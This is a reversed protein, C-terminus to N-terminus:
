RSATVFPDSHIQDLSAGALYARKRLRQVFEPNGCLFLRVGRLAPHDHLVADELREVARVHTQAEGERVCGIVSLHPVESALARLERWLYLGAAHRSGHYLYIAGRHGNHLASRLVGLLPALGAGTAALILKQEPQGPLYFCEGFPGRVNLATGVRANVLWQSMRGHPAVAVHLELRGQSPESAISYPRVLGDDRSLQVFQGPEYAFTEPVRLWVRGLQPSLREVREVVAEHWPAADVIDLALDSHAALKCGLAYGQARWAQKLGVQAEKPPTGERVRLLCSQCVGQRCSHEIDVGHRLLCELVSEGPAFAYRAGRYRLTPADGTM